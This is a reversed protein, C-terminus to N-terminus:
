GNNKEFVLLMDLIGIKSGPAGGVGGFLDFEEDGLTEAVAELDELEVDLSFNSVDRQSLGTGRMDYRIVRRNETLQEYWNQCEPASWLELQNWPGGIAYLLPRGSGISWYAIRASNQSAAYRVLRKRADSLTM